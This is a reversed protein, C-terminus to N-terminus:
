VSDRMSRKSRAFAKRAEDALLLSPAWAFLFLWHQLSFAATGFLRQLFPVYIVLLMLTLETVIGVWILRNSFLGIRFVSTQETRQAFLNGIQTAVVSGLTMATATQYLPGSTPLDLWQGWYGHMWYTFYFAAMAATSQVMGLWLYARLLLSRTIVHAQLDRPPREMVGPEPPEAGLALAPVIDTGLDIFLIQMINLALPIRGGSFAFLIFPVAEPTNSTFIYTIFKKINAYVTRGEEVANVISAFNDDTLIMDAAEKAVDTGAIGMAVGIDAKKLAPADNVGDGTVAVIHGLKQLATVVRLKHEPAVRAFIIEGGSLLTTRLTEGLVDDSMGGLDAGTLLRPQMGRIIGIRRAISEATLGYDGTMMIVRIGARHCKEVAEAVEARPPDMMAMLGLFTLDREVTEPTYVTLCEPPIGQAVALVRLGKRAYEDNATLIQTRQIDDLPHDQGNRRVHTCLALVEKPAGKVFVTRLQWYGTALQSSATFDQESASPGAVLFQPSGVPLQHITAMRKRRSDFPLERARPTRRAEADLDVGGKGAVVRLAAETPDGLVTWQDSESNPPLVRADNCLGAAVLLQRLDGDAPNVLPREDELIQGEPAYGVGTVTLRRGAVWLERVTMENQTLTGTKDTCIMTTCGLTEVASLRKILAHRRAMRQTGMALALTVTPLMGEPVFAVIMGIAFIFGEAATVEALITALAFFVLGVSVAIATVVKTIRTLEQQLPSFDEGISQTLYAIKGFESEMGVAFVVATGTGAAVSTGAFVLNPLEARTLDLRLVAEATKRVAHSEGTLTSQDVRLEAEQVLRGDASIHDGEALLMVDGPVLEEALIRQEQGDRLVRAYTPLLRQLAETAKEAKYEQWFSFIGNIVNVMWIATGLEPMRAFFAILGGVWLLLAMLHTFNSLCKLVLSTVAVKCIMNRGYRQLRAAVEAQTLGQPRSDLTEYVASVPVTHLPRRPESERPAVSLRLM